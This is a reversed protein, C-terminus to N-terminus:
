YYVTSTYFTQLAYAVLEGTLPPRKQTYPNHSPHGEGCSKKSRLSRMHRCCQFRKGCQPSSYFACIRYCFFHEGSNLKTKSQNKVWVQSKLINALKNTKNLGLANSKREFHCSSPLPPVQPPFLVFCFLVGQGGPSSLSPTAPVSSAGVGPAWLCPVLHLVAQPPPRPFRYPSFTFGSSCITNGVCPGLCSPLGFATPALSDRYLCPCIVITITESILQRRLFVLPLPLGSQPPPLHPLPTTLPTRGPDLDSRGPSLIEGCMGQRPYERQGAASM